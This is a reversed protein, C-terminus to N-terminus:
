ITKYTEAGKDIGLKESIFSTSVILEKKERKAYDLDIYGTVKVNPQYKLLVELFDTVGRKADGSSLGNEFRKSADTKIGVKQSTKRINAGDFHSASLYINRTEKTTEAKKGGKIGAIDLAAHQDAIVVMQDDLIIEKNDLTTVREETKAKRVFIEASIKDTDFAHLPQGINLMSFNTLDVIFSISRQGVTELMEKIESPTEITNDIGEIKVFIQRDCLTKDEIHSQLLPVPEFDYKWKKPKFKNDELLQYLEFAIAEHNLAYCARDPLINVDIMTDEGVKEMDEIEALHREFLVKIAEPTPLPNEFFTQLWNYSVKM